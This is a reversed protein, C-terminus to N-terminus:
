SEILKKIDDITKQKSNIGMSHLICSDFIIFDFTDSKQENSMNYMDELKIEKDSNCIYYKAGFQPYMKPFDPLHWEDNTVYVYIDAAQEIKPKGIHMGFISKSSAYPVNRNIYSIGLSNISRLLSSIYNDREKKRLSLMSDNIEIIIDNDQKLASLISYSSNKDRDKARQPKYGLSFKPLGSMEANKNQTLKIKMDTLPM